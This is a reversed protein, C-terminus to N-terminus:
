GYNIPQEILESLLRFLSNYKYDLQRRIFLAVAIGHQRRVFDHFTFPTRVLETAGNVIEVYFKFIRLHDDLISETDKRIVELMRIWYDIKQM